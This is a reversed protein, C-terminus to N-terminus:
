MAKTCIERPALGATLKAPRRFSGSPPSPLYGKLWALWPRQRATCRTIAHLQVMRSTLRQESANSRMTSSKSPM